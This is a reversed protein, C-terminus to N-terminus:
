QSSTGREKEEAMGIEIENDPDPRDIWIVQREEFVQAVVIDGRHVFRFLLRNEPNVIDALIALSIKVGNLEIIGSEDDVRIRM